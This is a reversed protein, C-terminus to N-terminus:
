LYEPDVRVMHGEVVLGQTGHHSVELRPHRVVLWDPRNDAHRSKPFVIHTDFDLHDRM